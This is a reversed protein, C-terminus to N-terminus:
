GSRRADASPLPQALLTPSVPPLGKDACGKGCCWAPKINKFINVLFAPPNMLSCTYYLVFAVAAALIAALLLAVLTKDGGM